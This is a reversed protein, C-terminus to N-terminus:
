VKPGETSVSAALAPPFEDGLKARARSLRSRVTGIPVGLAVATEEYSLDGWAVLTLVDLEGRPLHRLADRAHRLARVADMRDIADEEHGPGADRTANRVREVAAAHRRRGRWHQRLLNAAIGFLFPRATETTLQTSRRGRWAEFFTTSTLDEALHPDATRRLLFSQVARGHRVYLEGFADADGSRAQTWLTTDSSLTMEQSM